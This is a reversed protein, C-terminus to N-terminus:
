AGAWSQLFAETVIAANDAAIQKYVLFTFPYGPLNLPDGPGDSMGRIGLFPIGHADAVQQAAATEQDVADVAPPVDTLIGTLNSLLGVALFPVVAEFFNGTFLISFDPAACPQPGFIDGGLPIAPFATGNNNDDSSGDGGVFLQPERQLDVQPGALLGCYCTPDGITDTSLLDVNLTNAAALMGPDVADWTAGDDSTWRAPVAVSGIETRGSGGAVGSFVVAGVSIGSESTFHALAVETTRAANVMGIGTMAVIVKKGGLTGLYFHHGDVVVSPNPDLTMRTLIADAEAPFASLILTRPGPEVGVPDVSTLGLQRYIDPRVIPAASNIPLGTLAWDHFQGQGVVMSIAAGVDVARQHLLLNDPLLMEESGIYITTPPLAKLVETEAYLPSVRPDKLDTIGDYTHSNTTWFGLSNPNFFPDDITQIDPNTLSTDAAGSLLVMSAPVADGRLILERVAGFAFTYGASDGYISVNEAGRLDIQHSIFDAMAPNVNLASGATTTALPYLPVVVTAGTERAMQTYDIWHLLNPQLIFGGGHIAVVTKGSPDPPAFEWVKWVNGPAVEFETQRTNLGFTVFFPPSDSSILSGVFGTFDIGFVASVDRVLRLGLVTLQDILTPPPTYTLTNQAPQVRADALSPSRVDPDFERRASALLAWETPAETPAAPNDTAGFPSFIATAIETVVDTVASVPNSESPTPPLTVQTSTTTPSSSPKTAIPVPATVADAPDAVTSSVPHEPETASPPAPSKTKAPEAATHDSGKPKTIPSAPAEPTLGGTGLVVGPPTARVEDVDTSSDTAAGSTASTTVGNDAPKETSSPETEDGATVSDASSSTSTGSGTSGTTEDAWAPASGWGAVVAAGVGLAVALGGVRGV